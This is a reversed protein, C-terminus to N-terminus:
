SPMNSDVRWDLLVLGRGMQMVVAHVAARVRGKRLTAFGSVTYVDSELKCYRQFPAVGAPQIGAKPAVENWQRFQKDDGTGLVGDAGARFAIIAQVDGDLVEPVALLVAESATNINIRGDGHVTFQERLGPEDGEGFWEDEDIGKIFLMEDVTLFPSADENVEGVVQGRQPRRRMIANVTSFSLGGVEKLLEEPAENLGIRREEDTVRFSVVDDAYLTEPGPLDYVSRDELLNKQRGWLPSVIDIGQRKLEEEIVTQNRLVALGYEVSGRALLQARAQDLSTAAARQDLLVRQGFGLTLVTLIALVWIVTLLAYGSRRRM